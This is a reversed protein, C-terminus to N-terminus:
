ELLAITFTRKDKKLQTLLDFISVDWLAIKFGTYYSM